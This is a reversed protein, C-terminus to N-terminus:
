LGFLECVAGPEGPKSFRHFSKTREAEMDAVGGISLVPPWPSSYISLPRVRASMKCAFASKVMRTTPTGLRHLPIDGQSMEGYRYLLDGPTHFFDTCKPISPLSSALAGKDVSSPSCLLTSAGKDNATCTPPTQWM